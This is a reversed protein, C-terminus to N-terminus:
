SNFHSCAHHHVLDMLGGGKKWPSPFAAWSQLSDLSRRHRCMACNEPLQPFEGSVKLCSVSARCKSVGHTWGWDASCDLKKGVVSSSFMSLGQSTPQGEPKVQGLRMVMFKRIGPSQLFCKKVLEERVRDDNSLAPSSHPHWHFASLFWLHFNTATIGELLFLYFVLNNWLVDSFVSQFKVYSIQGLSM